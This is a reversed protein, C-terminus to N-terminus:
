TWILVYERGVLVTETYGESVVEGGGGAGGRGCARGVFAMSTTPLLVPRILALSPSRPADFSVRGHDARSHPPIGLFLPTEMNKRPTERGPNQKRMGHKPNWSNPLRKKRRHFYQRFQVTVQETLRQAM